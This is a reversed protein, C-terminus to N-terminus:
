TASQSLEFNKSNMIELSDESELNMAKMKNREVATEAYLDRYPNYGPQNLNEDYVALAERVTDGQAKGQDQYKSGKHQIYKIYDKRDTIADQKKNDEVQLRHQQIRYNSDAKAQEWGLKEEAERKQKEKEGENFAGLVAGVGAALGTAVLAGLFAVDAVPDVGGQVAAAAGTVETATALSGEVAALTGMEVGVDVATAAAEVSFAGDDVKHLVPMTLSPETM